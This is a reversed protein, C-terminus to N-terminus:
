CNVMQLCNWVMLYDLNTVSIFEFDFFIEKKYCEKTLNPSKLRFAKMLLSFIVIKKNLRSKTQNKAQSQEGYPDTLVSQSCILPLHIQLGPIEPSLHLMQGSPLGTVGLPQLPHLISIKSVNM